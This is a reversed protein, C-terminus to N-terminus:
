GEEQEADGEAVRLDHRSQQVEIVSAEARGLILRVDEVDSDRFRLHVGFTDAVSM